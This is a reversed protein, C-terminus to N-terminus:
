QVKVWRIDLGERRDVFATVASKEDRLFIRRSRPQGPTFFVDRVEAKMTVAKRGTRESSLGDDTCTVKTLIEPTLRYTGGYACLEDRSLAIAPPDELVALVQSAILRWGAETKLWTDTTRFENEIVQGHYDLREEAIYTTVAVNGHLEAKFAGVDLNGVLGKPLPQMEELLQAKTLVLNNESVYLLREHAYRKWVDVKGPAIADLLENTIRKLEVEPSEAHASLSFCVAVLTFLLRARTTM